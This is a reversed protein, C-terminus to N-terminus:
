PEAMGPSSWVILGKLDLEQLLEVTTREARGPDVDYEATLVDVIQAITRSGDALDWIRSGTPNLMRIMNESPSIIM